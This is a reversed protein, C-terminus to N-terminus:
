DNKENKKQKIFQELAEIEDKSTESNGLAHMVLKLASGKFATKVLKQFLNEKVKEEKVIAQYQHAKGTGVREIMGKDTMRQIQKLTTTYGVKKTETLIEHVARVTVPQRQWIINLIDLEAESPQNIDGMNQNK